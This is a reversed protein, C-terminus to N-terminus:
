RRRLIFISFLYIVELQKNAKYDDKNGLLPESLDNLDAGVLHEHNKGDVDGHHLRRRM